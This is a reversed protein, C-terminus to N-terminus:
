EYAQKSVWYKGIALHDLSSSFFTRIAQDPTCIIPESGVNFSTNLVMPIGTIKYFNKILKYYLKNTKPTVSQYRATGDHHVVAPIIKQSEKKVQFSKLMFPSYDSQKFFEGRKEEIVSPALPRWNERSKIKNIKNHMEPIGPHGLISRNGLARPGGEMKGQFWGIVNGKSLAKAAIKSIDKPKSFKIKNIKLLKEIIKDSYDPGLYFSDIQPFQYDNMQFNLELAAGVSVGADNVIPPIFLKDVIKESVLKGNVVCNLAVGGSLVLDKCRTKKIYIKVLHFVVEELTKQISFAFDMQKQDVKMTSIIKGKESDFASQSNKLKGFKKLFYKEWLSIVAKQENISDSLIYQDDPFGKIEYGDEKYSINDLLQYNKGSGALGMLKGVDFTRLGIFKCAAEMMYGLSCHIPISKLVKIKGENAIGITGSSDEGQGDLVIIVANKMGSLRFASAMHSIHHPILKLKPLKNYDFLKKPFLQKLMEKNSYTKKHRYNYLRNFDWGYAVYDIQDVGIEGKQLCFAISNEPFSDFAYRKRSFREEEAFAVIKNNRILCASADHGQDKWGNVGLIIVNHKTKTNKKM